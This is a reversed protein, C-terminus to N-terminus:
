ARLLLTDFALTHLRRRQSKKRTEKEKHWHKSAALMRCAHSLLLCPALFANKKKKKM